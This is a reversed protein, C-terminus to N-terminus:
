QNPLSGCTVGPRTDSDSCPGWPIATDGSPRGGPGDSPGRAGVPACTHRTRVRAHGPVACPHACVCRACWVACGTCVRYLYVCCMCVCTRAACMCVCVCARVGGWVGPICGLERECVGVGGHKFVCVHACTGAKPACVCGARKCKGPCIPAGDAHVCAARLAARVWLVCAHGGAEVWVCLVCMHMCVGHTHMCMCSDM